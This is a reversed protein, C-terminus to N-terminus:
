LLLLKGMCTLHAWGSWYIGKSCAQSLEYKYLVNVVHAVDSLKKIHWLSISTCKNYM